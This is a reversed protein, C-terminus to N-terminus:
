SLLADIEADSLRADEVLMKRLHMPAIEKGKHMPVLVTKRGQAKMMVHSGKGRGPIERYGLGRLLSLVKAPKLAPFRSAPYAVAM